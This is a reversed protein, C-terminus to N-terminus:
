SAMGRLVARDVVTIARYGMSIVGRDRLARLERRATDEEVGVLSGLEGQTLGLRLSVGGPGPNGYADALHDLVRALRVSASYGNFDVRRQQNWRLTNVIMRTLARDAEPFEALYDRFRQAPVVRARTDVCATVTASRPEGSLFAMEGVLDGGVKINLLAVRGNDLAQTVKVLAQLLLVVHESDESERMMVEGRRFARPAGLGLLATRGAPSLTDLYTGAPWGSPIAM